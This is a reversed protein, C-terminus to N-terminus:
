HMILPLQALVAYGRIIEEAEEETPVNASWAECQLRFATAWEGTLFVEKNTNKDVIEYGLRGDTDHHVIVFADTDYIMMM